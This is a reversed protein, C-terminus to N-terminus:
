NNKFSDMICDYLEQILYDDIVLGLVNDIYSEFDNLTTNSQFSFSMPVHYWMLYDNVNKALQPIKMIDEAVWNNDALEEYLKENDFDIDKLLLEIDKDSLKDNERIIKEIKECDTIRM